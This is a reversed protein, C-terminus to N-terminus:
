SGKALRKMEEAAKLTTETIKTGGILRALEHIIEEDDLRTLGTETKDGGSKKEILFHADAMSAIQPLHTVCIIQRRRALEALKKAVRLATRGSVGADIEDFVFTESPDTDALATKLALMVRSVEGGSAIQALPKLEEGPNPSILFEVRDAGDATFNERESIDVTFRAGKMGLEVLTNEILGSVRLAEKKRLATLEFCINKIKACVGALEADLKKLLEEGNLIRELRETARKHYSLIDDETRGYKRKLRYITDLRNEIRVLENPDSVFNDAYRRFDRIVDDLQIYVSELADAFAACNKDHAALREVGAKGEALKDIAPPEDGGDYLSALASGTLERIINLNSLVAARAALSEEEGPRIKAAEIERIQFRYLDLKQEREAEDGRIEKIRDVLANHAAILGALEDKFVGIGDGCLGDLLGIHKSASMLAHHEHQSHADFLLAALEKLMGSTATRGNIRCVTKGSDSLSRSIFLANEDDPEVGLERVASLNAGNTINILADVRANDEGTRIFDKPPRGGLIFDLSDVVMSKGAGTEGSIINLGGHFEIEMEEILAINKISLHTLL